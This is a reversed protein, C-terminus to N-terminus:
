DDQKSGQGQPLDSGGRVKCGRIVGDCFQRGGPRSGLAPHPPVTSVPNPEEAETIGTDPRLQSEAACM